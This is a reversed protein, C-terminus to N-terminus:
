FTLWSTSLKYTEWENDKFNANLMNIQTSNEWTKEIDIRMIEEWFNINKDNTSIIFNNYWSNEQWLKTIQGITSNYDQISINEADYIISFSINEAWSINKSNKIIIQNNEKEMFIDSNEETLIDNSNLISTKLNNWMESWDVIFFNIWIAMVLSLALIWINWIIKKKHYKKVFDKM